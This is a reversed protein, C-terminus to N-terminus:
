CSLKQILATTSFGEVLPLAIVDGGYSKVIDSGVIYKKDSKDTVEADYDAGKVLIDPKIMKILREPTADEFIVVANVYHLGAVVLARTEQNNIPRSPGKLASVSQDSNVAVIMRAGYSSARTLYEVHGAHLLDFCGNSFVVKMNKLRWNAVKRILNEESMVRNKLLTFHDTKM